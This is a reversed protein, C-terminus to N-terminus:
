LYTYLIRYELSKVAHNLYFLLVSYRPHEEIALIIISYEKRQLLVM